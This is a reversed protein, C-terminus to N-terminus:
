MLSSGSWGRKKAHTHSALFGTVRPVEKQLNAEMLAEIEDLAAAGGAEIRSIFQGIGSRFKVEPSVLVSAM